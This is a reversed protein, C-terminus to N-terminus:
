RQWSEIVIDAVLRGGYRLKFDRDDKPRVDVAEAHLLTRLSSTPKEGAKSKSCTPV